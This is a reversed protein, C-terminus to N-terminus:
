ENMVMSKGAVDHVEANDGGGRVRGCDGKLTTEIEVAHLFDFRWEEGRDGGMRSGHHIEGLQCEDGGKAHAHENGGVLNERKGSFWEDNETGIGLHSFDNMM